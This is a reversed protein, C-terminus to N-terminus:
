QTSVMTPGGEHVGPVGGDLRRVGASDAASMGTRMVSPARTGASKPRIPTTPRPNASPTAVDVRPM